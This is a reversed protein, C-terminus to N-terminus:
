EGWDPIFSLSLAAAHILMFLLLKVHGEGARGGFFALLLMGNKGRGQLGALRAKM